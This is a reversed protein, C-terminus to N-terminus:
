SKIKCAWNPYDDSKYRNNAWQLPQLNSLEDGGGKAVPKIHDIEWGWQSATNGYEGRQMSANCADKRFSPYSPEPTGKQWVAEITAADFAGGTKNTNPKRVGFGDQAGM